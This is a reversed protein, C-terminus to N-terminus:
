LEPFFYQITFHFTFLSLLAIISVKLYSLFKEKQIILHYYFNLTFYYFFTLFLFSAFIDILHARDMIKKMDAQDSTTPTPILSLSITAIIGILICVALLVWFVRWYKYRKKFRM